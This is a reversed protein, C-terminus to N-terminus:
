NQRMIWSVVASGAPPRCYHTAHLARRAQCTLRVVDSHPAAEMISYSSLGRNFTSGMFLKVLDSHSAETTDAGTSLPFCGGLEHACRASQKRHGSASPLRPQRSCVHLHIRETCGTQVLLALQVLCVRKLWLKRTNCGLQIIPARPESLKILFNIEIYLTLNPEASGARLHVFANVHLFATPFSCLVFQHLALCLLSQIITHRTGPGASM